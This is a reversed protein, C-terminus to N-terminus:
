DPLFRTPLELKASAMRGLEQRAVTPVHPAIKMRYDEDFTILHRDFARDHLVNLCIGNSPNVRNRPDDKWAVIHSANLLRRDEIGTLACRKQYSNLIIRRFFDQGIRRTTEAPQDSARTSDFHATPEAMGAPQLKPNPTQFQPQESLTQAEYAELANSPDALFKAWVLREMNSANALGKQPISTDLAALNSLKLAVASPTRDLRRALDIIDPNRSHFRGFATLLYLALAHSM